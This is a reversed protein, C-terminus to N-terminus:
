TGEIKIRRDSYSKGYQPDLTTPGTEIFSLSELSQLLLQAAPGALPLVGESLGIPSPLLPSRPIGHARLMSGLADIDKSTDMGENEVDNLGARPVYPIM